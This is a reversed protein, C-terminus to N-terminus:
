VHSGGGQKIRAASGGKAKGSRASRSKSLRVIEVSCGAHRSVFDSVSGLLFRDLGTRGHSGVVILNARWEAALDVLLTRTNGERVIASAKFGAARLKEAARAVLERSQKWQKARVKDLDVPEPPYYPLGQGEAMAPLLMEICEVVSIVRVPTRQPRFQKIVSQLAAESFKSSDMALLIKM